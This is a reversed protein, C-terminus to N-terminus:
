LSMSKKSLSRLMIRAQVVMRLIGPGFLDVAIFRRWSIGLTASLVAYQHIVHCLDIFSGTYVWLHRFFTVLERM